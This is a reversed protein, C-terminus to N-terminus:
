NLRGEKTLAQKNKWYEQPTLGSAEAADIEAASLRVVRPNGGATSGSRSVPAAPPSQRRHVVQAAMESPSEDDVIVERRPTLKMTDEISTFYDDTDPQLGDAVAINHAAIMKQTLRPDTACAPHARVWSASRPTLQSALAEVPDLKPPQPKPRAAYAEKGNELQLLKASNSSIDVQVKAASRHDGKSMAYALNNELTTINNKVTDIASNILSMNVDDVETKARFVQQTADNARKEAAERATREEALKRKLEGLGEEPEVIRAAPKDTKVVEVEPEKAATKGDANKPEDLDIQVDKDDNAM